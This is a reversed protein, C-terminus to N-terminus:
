WDPNQKLNPNKTIETQPIPFYTMKENWQRSVKQREYSLTGDAAKTIHM